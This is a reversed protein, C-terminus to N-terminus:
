AQPRECVVPLLAATRADRAMGWLGLLVICVCAASAIRWGWRLACAATRQWRPRVPLHAEIVGPAFAPAAPTCACASRDCHCVGLADCTYFHRM